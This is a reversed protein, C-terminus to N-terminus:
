GPYSSGYAKIEEETPVKPYTLTAAIQLAIVSTQNGAWLVQWGKPEIDKSNGGPQWAMVLRRCHAVLHATGPKQDDGIRPAAASRLNDGACFVFLSLAEDTLQGPAAVCNEYRGQPCYTGVGPLHKFLQPEKKGKTLGPLAVVKAGWGALREDAALMEMLAMELAIADPFLVSM